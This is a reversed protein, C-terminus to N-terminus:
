AARARARSVQQGPSSPSPTHLRGRCRRVPPVAAVLARDDAPRRDAASATSPRTHQHRGSHEVPAGLRSADETRGVALVPRRGLELGVGDVVQTSVDDPTIRAPACRQRIRRDSRRRDITRSWAVRATAVLRLHVAQRDVVLSRSYRPAPASSSRLSSAPSDHCTTPRPSSPTVTYPTAQTSPSVSSAAVLEPTYRLSSAPTLQDGERSSAVHGVLPRRGRARRASGDRPAPVLAAFLGGRGRVHARVPRHRREGGRACPRGRASRSAQRDARPERASSSM